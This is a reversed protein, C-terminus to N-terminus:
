REILRIEPILQKVACNFVIAPKTGYSIDLEKDTVAKLQKVIDDFRIMSEHEIVNTSRIYPVREINKNKISVLELEDSKFIIKSYDLISADFVKDFIMLRSLAKDLLKKDVVVHSDSNFDVNQRLRISPFTETIDMDKAIVILMISDTYFKVKNTRTPSENFTPLHEFEIYVNDIGSFIDLLKSQTYTLLIKFNNGVYPYKFSNIYINETYTIAGLNDIYIYSQVPRACIASVLGKSNIEAVSALDDGNLNAVFDENSCFKIEDLIKTKGLEKILPFTYSNTSTKLVLSNLVESLEIEECDLKSILPIFTEALLTVHINDGCNNDKIDISATLYYDSNSVKFVLKNDLTMIEIWGSKPNIKSKEVAISIKSVLKKLDKINLIM